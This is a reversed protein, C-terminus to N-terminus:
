NRANKPRKSKKGGQDGASKKNKRGKGGRAKSPVVISLQDTVPPQNLTIVLFTKADKLGSSSTTLDQIPKSGCLSRVAPRAAFMSQDLESAYYETPGASEKTTGNIMRFTEVLSQKSTNSPWGPLRFCLKRIKIVAVLSGGTFDFITKTATYGQMKLSRKNIAHVFFTDPNDIVAYGVQQVSEELLKQAWIVPNRATGPVGKLKKVKTRKADVSIVAVLVLVAIVLKM